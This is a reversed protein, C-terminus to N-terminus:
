IKPLDYVGRRGKVIEGRNALRVLEHNIAKPNEEIAAVV